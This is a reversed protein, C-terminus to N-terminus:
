KFECTCKPFKASAKLWLLKFYNGKDFSPSVVVVIYLVFLIDPAIHIRCQRRLLILKVLSNNGSWYIATHLM